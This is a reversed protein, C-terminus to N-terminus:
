HGSDMQIQTVASGTTEDWACYLRSSTAVCAPWEGYYHYNYNIGNAGGGDLLKTAPVADNGNYVAIRNNFATGNSEVWAIYIKSNFNLFNVYQANHAVNQNQSQTGGNSLYTWASVVPLLSPGGGNDGGSGKCSLTSFVVVSLVFALAASKKM